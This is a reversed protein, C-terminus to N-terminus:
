QLLYKLSRYIWQIDRERERYEIYIYIDYRYLIYIYNLVCVYKYIYIHVDSTINQWMPIQLQHGCGGEASPLTGLLSHLRQVESSLSSVHYVLRMQKCIYIYTLYIISWVYHHVIFLYIMWCCTMPVKSDVFWSVFLYIPPLVIFLCFICLPVHFFAFTTIVFRYLSLIVFFM